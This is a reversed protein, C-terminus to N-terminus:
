GIDSLASPRTRAPATSSKALEAAVWAAFAALEEDSVLPVRVDRHALGVWFLYPYDVIEEAVRSSPFVRGSPWTRAEPSAEAPDWAVTVVLKGSGSLFPHLTATFPGHERSNIQHASAARAHAMPDNTM